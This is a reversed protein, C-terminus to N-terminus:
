VFPGVAPWQGKFASGRAAAITPPTVFGAVREVVQAFRGAFEPERIRKVFAQWQRKHADAGFYAATLAIPPQTPLPAHRFRLV